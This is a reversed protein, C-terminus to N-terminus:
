NEDDDPETPKRAMTRRQQKLRFRGEGTIFYRRGPIGSLGIFAEARIYGGCELADRMDRSLHGNTMLETTTLGDSADDLRNLITHAARERGSM